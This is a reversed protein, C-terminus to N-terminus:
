MVGIFNLTIEGEPEHKLDISLEVVVDSQVTNGNDFTWLPFVCDYEGTLDHFLELCDYALEPSKTFDWVECYIKIKETSYRNQKTILAAEEYNREIIASILKKVLNKVKKYEKFFGRLELSNRNEYIYFDLGAHLNKEFEYYVIYKESFFSKEFNDSRAEIKHLVRLKKSQFTEKESIEEIESLQMKFEDRFVNEYTDLTEYIRKWDKVMMAQILKESKELIIAAHNPDIFQNQDTIM